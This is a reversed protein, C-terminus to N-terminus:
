LLSPQPPDVNTILLHTARRDNREKITWLYRKDFALVHWRPDAYLARVAPTSKIVLVFRTDLGAMTAALRGHDARTFSTADYDSFDSDYPPDLFVFDDPGPRHRALFTAFDECTLRTNALRRAVGDSRLRDIKASLDKRNYTIGGYPVNFEGARNFRFMAAYAYERLFFFAAAQRASREGRLRGTNYAARLATYCAAKFAGEVNRWADDVPLLQGRSEEVRRMRGLKDPVLRAAHAVFSDSLARWTPPVTAALDDLLASVLTTSQRASTPPSAGATGAARVHDVLVGGRTETFTAIAQWWTDIGDLLDFLAADRDRVFRYLDILDTSTDNALAPVEPPMAFLVAGGGVFPELYRDADSPVLPLIRDLEATKGGPWKLPPRLTM